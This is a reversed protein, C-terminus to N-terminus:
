NTPYLKVLQMSEKLSSPKPMTSKRYQEIKLILPKKELKEKKERGAQPKCQEKELKRFAHFKIVTKLVKTKELINM